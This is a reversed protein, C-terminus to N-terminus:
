VIPYYRESEWDSDATLVAQSGTCWRRSFGIRAGSRTQITRSVRLLVTGPECGLVACVEPPAAAADIEMNALIARPVYKDTFVDPFQAYHLEREIIPEGKVYPIFKEDCAAPVGDFLFSRRILILMRGPEMGLRRAIEGAAPIVNIEDYRSSSGPPQDHFELYFRGFEPPLVLYGKGHQPRILAENELIQLAKRVTIRSTHYQAALENESPLMDGPAYRGSFIERHLNDSITQYLYAM